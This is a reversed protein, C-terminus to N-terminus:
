TPDAGIQRGWYVNVPGGRDEEIIKERGTTGDLLACAANGDPVSGTPTTTGCIVIEDASGRAPAAYASDITGCDWFYTGNDEIVCFGGMGSSYDRLCGGSWKTTFQFANPDTQYDPWGKIWGNSVIFELAQGSYTNAIAKQETSGSAAAWTTWADYKATQDVVKFWIKDTMFPKWEPTKAPFTWALSPEGM